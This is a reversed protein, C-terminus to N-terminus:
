NKQQLYSLVEQLRSRLTQALRYTITQRPVETAPNDLSDNDLDEWPKWLPQVYYQLRKRVAWIGMSPFLAFIPILPSLPFMPMKVVRAIARVNFAFPHLQESGVCLIPLIPVKYRISLSVFSADFRALQYREPWGKVLGRWGEPAYLMVTRQAIAAEFSDTEARVGGLVQAWGKPLWWRLWPHDFFLPHALPQVLWERQQSLLWALNLFDWPFCMGAHNIAIILPGSTPIRDIQHLEARFYHKVIPTLIEDRFAKQYAADVTEEFRSHQEPVGVPATLFTDRVLLRLRRILLALYFGGPLLLLPYESWRWGDPDPKYYQWHRNFLILWAPPYWLCLWDFWSFRYAHLQQENVQTTQM